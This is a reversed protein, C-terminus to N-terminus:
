LRDREFSLLFPRSRGQEVTLVEVVDIECAWRAPVGVVVCGPVHPLPHSFSPGFVHPGWGVFVGSEHIGEGVPVIDFQTPDYVVDHARGRHDMERIPGHGRDITVRHGLRLPGHMRSRHRIGRIRGQQVGRPQTPRRRCGHSRARQRLRPRDLMLGPANRSRENIRTYIQGDQM